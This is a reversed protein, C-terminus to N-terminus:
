KTGKNLNVDIKSPVNIQPATGSIGQRLAPLGYLIFLAVVVILLIMGVMFGMGSDQNAPAPNIVTTM